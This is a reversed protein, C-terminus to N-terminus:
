LNTQIFGESYLNIETLHFLRHLLRLLLFLSAYVTNQLLQYM